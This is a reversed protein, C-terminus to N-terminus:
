LLGAAKARDVADRRTAVGLKRYVSRLHAKVTNVSVYLEDAIEGAKLMTPLYRLVILERDTLHEVVFDDCETTTTPASLELLEGAFAQHRGGLQRYRRLLEPLRGGILVFPRKIGGPQAADVASTLAALAAMDRQRRDNSLSRLLAASVLADRPLEAVGPQLLPEILDAAARHDGMASCARASVVTEWSSAFGSGTCTTGIRARALQPHGALLAAEAGVVASWRLLLDPADPTRAFGATMRQDAQQAAENDGRGVAVQVAAIAFALRIARDTERGGAALGRRVYGDALDPRHRAIEVMALSLFASLAQPESGWGRREVSRLAARASRDAAPLDGRMADVLSLHSTANLHALGLGLEAAEAAAAGLIRETEAPRGNWLQAGGLNSQAIIRFSRGTPLLSPATREVIEIVTGALDATRRSNAFSRASIMEWILIVIEAGVRVAPSEDTLLRRAETSDRLMAQYERRHYHRTASALLTTVSPHAVAADALPGIAAVLSPGEPTVLKPILELLHRGATDTEGALILHHIAEIPHDHGSMWEAARRHLRLEADPQELHLRHRMLELLMPHYNFWEQRGGMGVVFANARAFRELMLQGDARDTLHDALSGSVRDVISTWLLFDRDAPSLRRTVESVFYDAVSQDSGSFRAIGGDVDDPDLSLVALRLGAPWGQTRATLAHAQSMQISLGARGFLDVTDPVDFALEATRIETLQGAVRLRHLRLVPDARSVIVLRLSPPLHDILEGFSDLVADDTIEHFDDVVLVVPAPLEALRTRVDRAENPGFEAAPTIDRLLSSAPVAGSGIVAAILDSWFTRLVNDSSDLSLWGVPGSYSGSLAWSGVTSTKGAGPGACVLTVPFTVSTTLREVLATRQVLGAPIAPPHTKLAQM